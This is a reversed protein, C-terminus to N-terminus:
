AIRGGSGNFAERRAGGAEVGEEEWRRGGVERRGGGVQLRILLSQGNQVRKATQSRVPLHSKCFSGLNTCKRCLERSLPFISLYAQERGSNIVDDMVVTGTM